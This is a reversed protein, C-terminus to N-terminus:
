CTGLGNRRREMKDIIMKPVDMCNRIYENTKRELKSTRASRLYNMEVLRRKLDANLTWVKSGYCLVSEVM